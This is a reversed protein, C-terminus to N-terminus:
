KLIGSLASTGTVPFSSSAIIEANTVGSTVLAISLMLSTVETLNNSKVHIGGNNTM